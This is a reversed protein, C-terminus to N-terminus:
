VNNDKVFTWESYCNKNDAVQKYEFVIWSIERPVSHISIEQNDSISRATMGENWVPDILTFGGFIKNCSTTSIVQNIISIPKNEVYVVQDWCIIIDFDDSIKNILNPIVKELEEHTWGLM